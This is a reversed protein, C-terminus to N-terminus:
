KKVTFIGRVFPRNLDSLYYISVIYTGAQEMKISDIFYNKTADIKLNKAMHIKFGWNQVKTNKKIVQLRLYPSEFGDPNFVVFYTTEGQEFFDVPTHVTKKNIPQNNFLIVPKESSCGGLFFMIFVVLLCRLRKIM